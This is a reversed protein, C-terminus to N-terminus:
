GKASGPVVTATTAQRVVVSLEQMRYPKQLFGLVEESELKSAVDTQSYGTSMIIRATPDIKKLELVCDAGGMTPMIMDVIVLDVEDAHDRYWAVAQQGDNATTVQYGLEELMEKALDRLIEEDDVVLVHGEGSVPSEPRTDNDTQIESAKYPLYIRFTTGVGEESYVNIAGGHGRTVGYVMALGMGTGHGPEKDTFFPEFVRELKEASMGCGTDSVVIINYRGPPHGELHTRCFRDDLDEVRTEFRLEGGGPMADRANVALNLLLQNIQTPDGAITPPTEPLSQHISINKDITRGLFEVVDRVSDNLDVPVTQFKGKRAFGLLQGTLDQARQAAKEIVDVSHAMRSDPECDLKLIDTYGLIGTLLNNFDHAVGGALTGIADMKQSHRYRSELELKEQEVQKRETVDRSVGLVGIPEDEENFLFTLRNEITIVAGDKCFAEIQVMRDGKAHEPAERAFRLSQEMIRRCFSISEPTLDEIMNKKTFEEVTWGRQDVISPSVYVCNWDLDHVYIVDTANEALLRYRSESERLAEEIRRREENEEVLKANAVSLAQAQENLEETREEVLRSVQATRVNARYLMGCIWFTVFGGLALAWWSQPNREAEVLAPTAHGVVTLDVGRISVDTMVVAGGADADRALDVPLEENGSPIYYTIELGRMADPLYSSGVSTHSTAALFGVLNARREEPTMENSNGEYIPLFYRIIMPSDDSEYPIRQFTSIAGTDRTREMTLRQLPHAYLDKGVPDALEYETAVMARPFADEGDRVTRPIYELSTFQLPVQFWGTDAWAANLTEQTIITGALQDGAQMLRSVIRTMGNGFLDTNSYVTLVEIGKDVRDYLRQQDQLRFTYFISLTLALGLALAPVIQVLRETITEKTQGKREELM